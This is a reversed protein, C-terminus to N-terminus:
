CSRPEDNRPRSRRRDDVSRTTRTKGDRLSVNLLLKRLRDLEVEVLRRGVEPVLHEALEQLSQGTRLLRVEGLCLTLKM